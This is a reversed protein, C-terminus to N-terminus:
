NGKRGGLHCTWGVKWLSRFSKQRSSLPGPHYRHETITLNPKKNYSVGFLPLKAVIFNIEKMKSFDPLLRELAGSMTQPKM